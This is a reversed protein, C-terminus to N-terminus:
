RQKLQLPESPPKTRGEQLTQNENVSQNSKKRENDVTVYINGKPNKIRWNQLAQDSTFGIGTIVQDPRIIRVFEETHIKEEKEEWILYDTKLTDGKENTAVVNNKAEWRKDKVFQKAYDAKLSSVINKNADFKVLEMGEPFEIYEVGENEFRLLRPTKLSYRVQGSDTFLTEFDHAELFPLNEPSSFAKIKKIDNECGYFLIAAGVILAAISKKIIDQFRNSGQKLQRM